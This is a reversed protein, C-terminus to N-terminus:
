RKYNHDATVRVVRVVVQDDLVKYIIRGYSSFASARFGSWERDLAHDHWESSAAVYEPGFEEVEDIWKRIVKIDDKSIVSKQLMERLRKEAKEEIDVKWYSM